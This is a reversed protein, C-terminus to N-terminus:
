KIRIMLVLFNTDYITNLYRAERGGWGKLTPKMIAVVKKKKM